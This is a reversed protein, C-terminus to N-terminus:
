SNIKNQPLFVQILCFLSTAIAISEVINYYDRNEVSFVVGVIILASTLLVALKLYPAFKGSYVIRSLIVVTVQIVFFALTMQWLDTIYDPVFYMVSILTLVVIFFGLSAKNLRNSPTLSLRFTLITLFLFSSYAGLILEDILAETQFDVTLFSYVALSLTIVGLLSITHKFPRTWKM